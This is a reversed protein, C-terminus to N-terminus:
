CADTPFVQCCLAVWMAHHARTDGDIAALATFTADFGFEALLVDVAHDLDMAHTIVVAVTRHISQTRLANNM